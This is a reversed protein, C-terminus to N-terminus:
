ENIIFSSELVASTGIFDKFPSSKPVLICVSSCIILVLIYDLQTYYFSVGKRVLVRMNIILIIISHIKLQNLSQGIM